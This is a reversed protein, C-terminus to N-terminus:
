GQRILICFMVREKATIVVTMIAITTARAVLACCGLAGNWRSVAVMAVMWAANASPVSVQACSVLSYRSRISAYSWRPGASRVMMVTFGRAM